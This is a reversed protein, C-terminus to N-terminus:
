NGTVLHLDGFSIHIFFFVETSMMRDYQTEFIKFNLLIPSFALTVTRNVKEIGGYVNFNSLIYDTILVPGM